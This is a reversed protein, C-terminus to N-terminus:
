CGADQHHYVDWRKYTQLAEAIASGYHSPNVAVHHEYGNRCVYQMLKQLGPIKVVGYGGFSQPRDDTTAGEGVYARMRGHLDDTSARCYTIPGSKLKGVVTGYTSEKGVSGAIIEQYDMKFDEFFEKPLNSCHFIVCKDPDEGHHTMEHYNYPNGMDRWAGTGDQGDMRALYSIIRTSDTQLALAIVDFM